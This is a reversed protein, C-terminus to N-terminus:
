RFRWTATENCRKCIYDGEFQMWDHGKERCETALSVRHAQLFALVVVALAILVFLANITNM